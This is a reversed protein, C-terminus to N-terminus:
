LFYSHVYKCQFRADLQICIPIFYFAFSLLINIIISNYQNHNCYYKFIEDYVRFNITTELYISKGETKDQSFCYNKKPIM